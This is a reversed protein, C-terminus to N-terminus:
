TRPARDYRFFHESAALPLVFQAGLLNLDRLEPVESKELFAKFERLEEIYMPETRLADQEHDFWYQQHVFDQM